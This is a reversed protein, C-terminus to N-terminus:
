QVSGHLQTSGEQPCLAVDPNQNPQPLNWPVASAQFCLVQCWARVQSRFEKMRLVRRLIQPECKLRGEGVDREERGAQILRPELRSPVGKSAVMEGEALETIGVAALKRKRGKWKLGCM